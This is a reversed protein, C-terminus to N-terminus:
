TSTPRAAIGADALARGATEATLTADIDAGPEYFGQSRTM